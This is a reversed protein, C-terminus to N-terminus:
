VGWVPNDKRKIESIEKLVGIEDKSLYKKLKKLKIFDEEPLDSYLIDEEHIQRGVTLHPISVAVEKGKEAHDINEGESQMSKVASAKDGNIKMLPTDNYLTGGLVEVGVVAPNNQRFVYGSMIHIKCPKVLNELEKAEQKKTEEEVWKEFDEIIRYIVDHTIIKVEQTEIKKVNFGLIVKNLPEKEATAEAMDKKSIDGVSAKKIKISKAKLLGILAELSGLTDAKIVVGENDTEIIVEKIEKQIEEKAQELNNDVSRLPMGAIVNEIDPASIKIGCAAHVEKVPKFKSSKLDIPHLLARIKTVIPTTLNGIVIQDNQKLTGDYIIVDLTTGLGKEEKVELITGKAPGAVEIKLSNELYRQALGTIVMLLEPLGDGTNASLPIIAVQKTYDEVRDFRESPIKLEYLRGVLDYLKNDIQQKVSEAQNQINQLLLTEKNERWGPILDIKNLAIVFPTKYQKLIEICEITQPMIGENIDIVLIAIDALNGGRKRLNTFAAHGPTDIFLIGPITFKLNLKKLLGGCINQIISLPVLTSSICQTIGGAESAVICTGRIKDLISSKGHDVHGVVTCIPSRIYPM